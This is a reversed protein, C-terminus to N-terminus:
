QDGATNTGCTWCTHSGDAHVRQYTTRSCGSCHRNDNEEADGDELLGDLQDEDLLGHGAPARHRGAPHFLQRLVRMPSM